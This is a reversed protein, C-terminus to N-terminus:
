CVQWVFEFSQTDQWQNRLFQPGAWRLVMESYGMLAWLSPTVGSYGTFMDLQWGREVTYNLTKKLFEHGTTVQDV